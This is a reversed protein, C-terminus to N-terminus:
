KQRNKVIQFGSHIAAQHTWGYSSSRFSGLAFFRAFFELSHGHFGPLPPPSPLAAGHLGRPTAAAIAATGRRTRRAPLLPSLLGGGCCL